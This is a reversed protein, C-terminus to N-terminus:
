MKVCWICLRGVEGNEDNIDAKLATEASKSKTVDKNNGKLKKKPDEEASEKQKLVNLRQRKRGRAKEIANEDNPLPESGELCWGFGLSVRLFLLRQEMFRLVEIDDQIFQEPTRGLFQAWAADSFILKGSAIQGTEDIVPGIQIRQLNMLFQISTLFRHPSLSTSVIKPNIRLM